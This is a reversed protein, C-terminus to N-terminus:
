FPTPYELTRTPINQRHDPFTMVDVELQGGEAVGPGWNDKTGHRGPSQLQTEEM